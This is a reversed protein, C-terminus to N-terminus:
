QDPYHRNFNEGTTAEFRGQHTYLHFQSLGIPNAMPVLIIEGLVQGATQLAGLKLRLHHAVLMGPLEDAHL